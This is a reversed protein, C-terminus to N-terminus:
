RGPPTIPERRSGPVFAGNRKRTIWVRPSPARMLRIGGVGLAIRLTAAKSPSPSTISPWGARIPGSSRPESDIGVSSMHPSWSGAPLGAVARTM